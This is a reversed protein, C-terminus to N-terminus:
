KNQVLKRGAAPMRVKGYVREPVTGKKGLIRGARRGMEGVRKVSKGFIGNTSGGKENEKYKYLKNRGTTATIMASPLPQTTERRSVNIIYHKWLFKLLHDWPCLGPYFRGASDSQFVTIRAVVRIQGNGTSM